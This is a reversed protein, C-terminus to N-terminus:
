VLTLLVCELTWLCFEARCTHVSFTYKASNQNDTHHDHQLKYNTTEQWPSYMTCAVLWQVHHINHFSHSSTCPWLSLGLLTSLNRQTSQDWGTIINIHYSSVMIHVTHTTAMKIHWEYRHLPWSISHLSFYLQRCGRIKEHESPVMYDVNKWM